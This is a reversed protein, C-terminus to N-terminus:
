QLLGPIKRLQELLHARNRGNRVTIMDANQPHEKPYLHRQASLRRLSARWPRRDRRHARWLRVVWPAHVWLILNCHHHLHMPFLLAANIVVRGSAVEAAVCARMWPHVISELRQRQAGSSDGFVIAGLAPRSIQGDATLITPGFAAVIEPQMASLAQHGLSDVNIERYGHQVLISTVLDKGACCFGAVGVVRPAAPDDPRPAAQAAAPDSM